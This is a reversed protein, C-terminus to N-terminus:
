AHRTLVEFSRAAIRIEIANIAMSPARGPLDVSATWPIAAAVAPPCTRHHALFSLALRQGFEMWGNEDARGHRAAERVILDAHAESTTIM